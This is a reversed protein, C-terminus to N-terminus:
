SMLRHFVSTVYELMQTTSEAASACRRDNRGAQLCASRVVACSVHSRGAGGCCREHANYKWSQSGGNLITGVSGYSGVGTPACRESMAILRAIVHTAVAKSCRDASEACSRWASGEYRGPERRPLTRAHYRRISTRRISSMSNRPAAPGVQGCDRLCDGPTPHVVLVVPHFGRTRWGVERAFPAIQAEFRTSATWIPPCVLRRNAVCSPSEKM